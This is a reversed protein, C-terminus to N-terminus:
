ATKKVREVRTPSWLDALLAFLAGDCLLLPAFPPALLSFREKFPAAHRFFAAVHLYSGVLGIFLVAWAAALLLERGGSGKFYGRGYLVASFLGILVPSWETWHIFGNQAHDQLSMLALGLFSVAAILLLPRYLGEKPPRLYVLLLIGLATLVIPGLLPASYVLSALGPEPLFQGALHWIFGAVGVLISGVAVVHLMPRGVRGPTKFTFVLTPICAVLPWGLSFFMGWHYFGTSWHALTCDAAIGVLNVGVFALLLRERHREVWALIKHM